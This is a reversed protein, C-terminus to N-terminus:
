PSIAPSSKSLAFSMKSQATASVLVALPSMVLNNLFVESADQLLVPSKQIIKKKTEINIFTARQNHHDVIPEKLMQTTCKENVTRIKILRQIFRINKNKLFKTLSEGGLLEHFLSRSFLINLQIEYTEEITSLGVLKVDELTLAVSPLISLFVGTEWLVKFWFRGYSVESKYRFFQLWYDFSKHFLARNVSNGIGLLYLYETFGRLHFFSLM